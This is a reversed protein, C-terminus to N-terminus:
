GDEGGDHHLVIASVKAAGTGRSEFQPSVHSAYSDFPIRSKNFTTETVTAVLERVTSDTPQQGMYLDWQGEVAVDLGQWQKFETPKGAELFPIHCKAVTEDYTLTTLGGFVYITDGSRVHVRRNFVVADDITLTTTVDSATTAPLYTTWASVKANPYFSFVFIEDSFCLWFRGDVPNILGIVRKREDVSLDALKATILSDVPVGLDTTSAANSSDRAKLSRLGSLALYFLDSDGFQTVSLPSVTGTNKLTQAVYYNDPDPDVYEIIISNEAFAAVFNQYNAVALLEEAGSTEYSMDIFGAGTNDTTWGTPLRIGSFHFLNDSVSYVKSGITKVFTGPTFAASDSGGALELGTAPTLVIDGSKGFVVVRGNAASGADSAVINVRDDDSTADYDPSSTHANINAAIAAATDPHSTGWAVAGSLIETGNVTLSDLQGVGALTGATVRFSARARGDYWDTVNAGDYYHAITGDEFEAM